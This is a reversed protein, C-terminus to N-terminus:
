QFFPQCNYVSCMVIVIALISTKCTPFELLSLPVILLFCLCCLNGVAIALFLSGPQSPKQHYHLLMSRYSRIVDCSLTVRQLQSIIRMSSSQFFSLLLQWFLQIVLIGGSVAINKPLLPRFSSYTAVVLSSAYLLFTIKEPVFAKPSQSFYIHCFHM